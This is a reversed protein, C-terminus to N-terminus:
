LQSIKIKRRLHSPTYVELIKYLANGSEHQKLYYCLFEDSTAESLLCEEYTEYLKLHQGLLLDEDLNATFGM